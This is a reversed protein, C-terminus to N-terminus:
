TVLNLRSNKSTKANMNMPFIPKYKETKTHHKQNQYWLSVPRLSFQSTNRGRRNKSSNRLFEYEEKFTQYCEGVFGDPGPSKQTHSTRFM